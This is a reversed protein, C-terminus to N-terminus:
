REWNNWLSHTLPPPSRYVKDVICYITTSYRSPADTVTFWIGIYWVSWHVLRFTCTHEATSSWNPQIFGAINIYMYM